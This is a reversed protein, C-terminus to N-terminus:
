IHASGSEWGIVEVFIDVHYEAHPAPYYEAWEYMTTDSSAFLDNSLGDVDEVSLYVEVESGGQEVLINGTDFEFFGTSDTFLQAEKLSGTAPVYVRVHVLAERIGTSDPSRMISGKLDASTFHDQGLCSWGTLVFSLLVAVAALSHSIRILSVREGSSQRLTGSAGTRRLRVTGHLSAGSHRIM